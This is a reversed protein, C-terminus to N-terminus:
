WKKEYLNWIFGCGHPIEKDPNLVDVGGTTLYQWLYMYAPDTIMSIVVEADMSTM